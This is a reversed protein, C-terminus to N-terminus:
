ARVCARKEALAAYDGTDQVEWFRQLTTYADGPM